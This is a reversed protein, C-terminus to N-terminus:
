EDTQKEERDPWETLDPIDGIWEDVYDSTCSVAYKVLDYARQAILQKWREKWGEQEMDINIDGWPLDSFLLEAFGLFQTDRARLDKEEM